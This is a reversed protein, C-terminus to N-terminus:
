LNRNKIFWFFHMCLVSFNVAILPMDHKLVGYVLWFTTGLANIVRLLHMDKKVSFSILITITAIWGILDINM